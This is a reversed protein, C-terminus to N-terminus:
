LDRAGLAERIAYVIANLTLDVDATFAANTFRLVTYGQARLWADRAADYGARVENTPGDLEVIVDGEACVFDAIYPGIPVQRKFKHGGLRRNRVLSWFLKETVVPDSRMEKARSRNISLGARYEKTQDAVM